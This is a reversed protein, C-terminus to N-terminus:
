RSNAMKPLAGPHNGQIQLARRWQARALAADGMEEYVL